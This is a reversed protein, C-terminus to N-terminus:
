EGYASERQNTMELNKVVISVYYSNFRRAIDVFPISHISQIDFLLIPRIEHCPFGEGPFIYTM